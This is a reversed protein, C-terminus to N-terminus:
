EKRGATSMSLGESSPGAMLGASSLSALFGPLRTWSILSQKQEKITCCISGSTDATGTWPSWTRKAGSTFVSRRLATGHPLQGVDHHATGRAQEAEAAPLSRVQWDHNQHWTEDFALLIPGESNTLDERIRLPEWALSATNRSKSRTAHVTQRRGCPPHGRRHAFDSELIAEPQMSPPRRPSRVSTTGARFRRCDTQLSSGSPLMSHHQRARRKTCCCLLEHPHVDLRGNFSCPRPVPRGHHHGKWGDM